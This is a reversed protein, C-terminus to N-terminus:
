EFVEGNKIVLAIQASNRIDELPDATLVVLDALKGPAISGLEGQLGLYRAGEITAARLAEHPSMAGPGAMSWLEWHVGLGQLQGRSGLTVMGGAQAIAAADRATSQFRWDRALVPRRWAEQDLLRRPYHRQLRPHDIPNEYQFYFNEGGLGGAAALLTPSIAAGSAVWWQLVDGYVPTSPLASTIAHHGDAALTLLQWLDGGGEAVCLMGAARCADAYRQRQARRAQSAVVVGAAGAIELRQVHRAAAEPDPTRAPVRGAAFVRPGDQEGAAVREAQTLAVDAPASPDHVTTVGFDLATQYRWEQEPLIDGAGGHSRANVDVLGPIVTRGTCDIVAAGPPPAAGAEVSVIRDREIVVTADEVIEEGEMTILRAHTLALTGEPRDRPVQLDVETAEAAAEGEGLTWTHVTTGSVWSLADGAATWSLWDGAADDLTVRPLDEARVAEDADPLEIVHVRRGQRWAVRTLDPSPVAEATGPLLLHTRRGTGDLKVSALATEPARGEVLHDESFWVRGGHLRLRPARPSASRRAVTCVVEVSWRGLRRTLLVVEYGAATAPEPSVTGGVGRLVVLQRGDASWAPNVLLGSIPLKEARARWGLTGVYLAGGGEAFDGARPRPDSWSTWALAAGDPRWAPAYGSGPSMRTLAGDPERMWLAGMASFVLKGDPGWAPWRLVRARVADAVARAPREAPRMPWSGEATFPIEVREGQLDVRWLRGRAWLVVSGGDATWDIAPYVGRAARGEMQDMSLWDALVRRQGSAVEMVELVTKERDRSIFALTRGDPSLAPRAASGAGTVAPWLEGSGRDLRMISWLGAVPDADPQFPGSRASFWVQDDQVWAEGAGLHADGRTLALGEGGERPFQWIEADASAALRRRGLVYPGDPDWVPDTVRATPDDTLQRARSGDARMIWLQESGSADSVYAIHRGDPSFRPQGDWAGGATLRRAEGGSLLPVSWIDGLLDFVVTNRHVDVNMWTGESLTLSVERAAGDQALGPTAPLLSLSLLALSILRARM